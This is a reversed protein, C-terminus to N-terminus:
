NYIKIKYLKPSVIKYEITYKLKIYLTEKKKIHLRCSM